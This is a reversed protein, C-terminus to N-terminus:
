IRFFARATNTTVEAVESFDLGKIEAIKEAIFKTYSPENRKGRKPEPALYPADTELMMQELPTVKVLEQIEVANKFTVIGTFSLLVGFDLFKQAQELTGSFCHVVCKNYDVKQLVELVDDYADFSNKSPRTHITVPLDLERALELGQQFIEKQYKKVEQIDLGAPMHFYDIGMEGIGVVKKNKALQRYTDIDFKESRIDLDLNQEVEEVHQPFLHIPHLGIIAYVGEEYKEAIEIARKSTSLQSGVNIVWIDNDLSRELVDERDEKQRKYM